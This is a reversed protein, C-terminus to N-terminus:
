GIALYNWYPCLIICAFNCNEGENATVPEIKGRIWFGKNLSIAAHFSPPEEDLGCVSSSRATPQATELHSHLPSEIRLFQGM